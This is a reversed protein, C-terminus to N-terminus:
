VADLAVANTRPGLALTCGALFLILVASAAYLPGAGAGDLLPVAAFPLVAAMLRSLSYSGGVKTAREKTPFLEAIYARSVTAQVVNVLGTLFGAVVILAPSQALGFLLGFVAMLMTTTVLLTRRQVREVVVMVLLAGVPYGLVTLASFALSHVVDYGKSILVLPALSAFGYFGVPGISQLLCALALRRSGGATRDDPVVAKAPEADTAVRGQHNPQPFDAFDLIATAEAERGQVALWRPSEPLRRRAVWVFVAGLASTAILLRWSSVGAIQHPLLTASFAAVPVGLFGFLYVKALMRGRHAAPMVETSYTDVLILEAGLGIGVLFRTALLFGLSPSFACLISLAAYALLNVQFMTRRGLRDALPSLVAAGIFEGGFACAIVTAKKLSTDVWAHPLLTVILGGLAVEFFNFLCGIGLLRSMLRHWANIPAEDLRAAVHTQTRTQTLTQYEMTM